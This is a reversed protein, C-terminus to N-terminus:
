GRAHIKRISWEVADRMADGLAEDFASVINNVDDTSSPAHEEFSQSAIIQDFEADIIKVNLRVVVDYPAPAAPDAIVFAQFERVDTVIVFDARLGVSSRGVAGVKGSNEFSEILLSQVILPARDVWRSKPLYQVELATPQIAIRDTDVAAPATPEEVVIQEQLRPLNSDFTSKPTLLYLNVPTSVQNLTSFGACGALVTCAAVALLIKFRNM